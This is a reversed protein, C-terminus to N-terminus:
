KPYTYDAHFSWSDDPKKTYTLVVKTWAAGHSSANVYLDESLQALLNSITAKGPEGVLNKLKYDIWNGDTEITLTASTWTDPIGAMVDEHLADLIEEQEKLWEPAEQSPPMPEADRAIVSFSLVLFCIALIYRM